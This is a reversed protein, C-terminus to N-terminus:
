TIHVHFVELIITVIVFLKSRFADSFDSFKVKPFTSWVSLREFHTVSKSYHLTTLYNNKLRDKQGSKFRTDNKQTLKSLLLCQSSSLVMGGYIYDLKVMWGQEFKHVSVYSVLSFFHFLAKFFIRLIFLKRM